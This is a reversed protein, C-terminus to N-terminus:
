SRMKREANQMSVQLSTKKMKTVTVISIPVSILWFIRTLLKKYVAKVDLDKCHFYTSHTKDPTNFNDNDVRRFKSCFGNKFHISRGSKDKKNKKLEEDVDLLFTFTHTVIM